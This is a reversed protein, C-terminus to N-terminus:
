AGALRDIIKFGAAYTGIASGLTSLLFVLLIRTVRNHWWGKLRTTDQRLRSFDGVTPRRLFTEIAATVMGAGITPNLSTLPAAFFAGVVTLPHARAVLAGLAALGGNIVIWDIVLQWGLESSQYFGFIFGTLILAVIVWPILKPWRSPSPVQDLETIIKKASASDQELYRTVGRLHGAGIVGLLHHYEGHTIEERLRAAMYRDREDILPTYLPRAEAAFQSFTTELVDGEKLREVEEESVTDRSVLSAFLGAILNFRQWWPVNRYIRKLTTGVERDILVVPLKATHASDVAARMEAGPEIGFQEAIRQQYAALALSATVMAAKGKRLVEFLDMRSLADPNILAHYRSPCLEVAVADYDGTALLAKVHEASARSVHATGLLTIQRDAFKIISLPQQQETSNM